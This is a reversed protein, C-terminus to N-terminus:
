TNQEAEAASAPSTLASVWGHRGLLAALLFRSSRCKAFKNKGMLVHFEVGYHGRCPWLLGPLCLRHGVGHPM